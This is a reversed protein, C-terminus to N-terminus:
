HKTSTWTSEPRETPATVPYIDPEAPFTRPLEESGRANIYTNWTRAALTAWRTATQDAIGILDALVSAPIEAALGYRAAQRANGPHINHAVLEARISETVRHTGPNLGPFLWGHRQTTIAPVGPQALHARILDDLLAPMPIPVDAFRVTASGSPHITVQDLRMKCIVSLPQAFLLLFLGALRAHPRITDDHLLTHIQTWRDHDSLTVEPLPDERTPLRIVSNARTRRLWALFGNHTARGRPHDDLYCEFDTQTLATVSTGHERAWCCLRIAINIQGRGATITSRTLPGLTARHRLHRLIHWHAFRRILNADDAALPALKTELWPLMREIAPEYPPLVALTTLLQRLYNHAKDSPLGRFADHSIPIEGRAMAQLLIAGTIPPKTLYTVVSQPRPAALLEDFVPQLQQHVAGTRPDTLLATLRDHLACRACRKGYPHDERGCQACAFISVEIGACDACVEEGGVRYAM